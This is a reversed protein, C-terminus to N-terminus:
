AESGEIAQRERREYTADLALDCLDYAKGLFGPLEPEAEGVVGSRRWVSAATGGGLQIATALRRNAAPGILPDRDWDAGCLVGGAVGALDAQVGEDAFGSTGALVFGTGGWMWAAAFGDALGECVVVTSAGSPQGFSAVAVASLLRDAFSPLPLREDRYGAPCIVLCGCGKPRGITRKALGGGDPRPLGKPGLAQTIVARPKPVHGRAQRWAALTALAGILRGGGDADAIWRIAHPWPADAGWLGPKCERVWLRAPHSPDVPIPKALEWMSAAVALPDPEVSPDSVPEPQEAPVPEPGSPIAASDVQRRVASPVPVSVRDALTLVAARWAEGRPSTGGNVYSLLDGTRGCRGHHCKWGFTDPNVSLRLDKPDSQDALDHFPCAFRLYGGRRRGGFGFVAEVTAARQCQDALARWDFESAAQM